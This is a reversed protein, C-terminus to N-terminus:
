GKAHAVGIEIEGGAPTFKIANTLLNLLMQKIKAQDGILDPIDDPLSKVLILGKSVAQETIMAIAGEICVELDVAGESLKLDGAEIRSMDLIDNIVFLLDRGSQNVSHLFNLQEEDDLRNDGTEALLDSFGIIANLPTRM